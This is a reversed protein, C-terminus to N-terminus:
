FRSRFKVEVFFPKEGKKSVFMFDPYVSEGVYDDRNTSYDQAKHELHYYKEPFLYDRVYKEFEEGTAFSKPKTVENYIAKTVRKLLGM